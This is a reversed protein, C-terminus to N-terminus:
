SAMRKRVILLVVAGAVLLGGVVYFLTTGMGGTEPLETGSQNEVTIKVIGNEVTANGTSVSWTCSGEATEPLACNITITIPEKLLNFGNPAKLETLTYTGAALGSFRVVGDTGVGAEYAVPEAKTIIETEPVKKYGIGGDYQDATEETPKTQTFTGDKLKYWNGSSSMEFTDRTVVIQNLREGKLEFGAGNLRNGSPDVKTLELATVFSKTIQDPTEGIVDQDEPTPKNEGQAEVNPNNSYILNVQNPNGEVGIVADGTITASYRIEIAQGDSEAFKNYFDNFVIEVQTPQGNGGTTSVTFDTGSKLSQGGVTIAVDNNFQLGKSLTDNVVFFYKNYGTMNPVKTTLVYPVKDGMAANNMDVKGETSPDTDGAGDIQKDITPEDAKLTIETTTTDLLLASIPGKAGQDEIVYYGLDLYDITVMEDGPNGTATGKLTAEPHLKAAALAAKAFEFVDPEAAIRSAVEQDFEPASADLGYREAYFDDLEAPVVYRFGKEPANFDYVELDMLKYANFTKGEVTVTSSNKVTLSGYVLMAAHATLSLSLTFVMMLALCLSFTRKMTKM